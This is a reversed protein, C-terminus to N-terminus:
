SERLKMVVRELSTLYAEREKRSERRNRGKHSIQIEYGSTYRTMVNKLDAQFVRDNSLDDDDGKRAKRDEVLNKIIFGIERRSHDSGRGAYTVYINMASVVDSGKPESGPRESLDANERM